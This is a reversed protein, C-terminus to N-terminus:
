YDAQWDVTIRKGPQVTRRLLAPQMMFEAFAADGTLLVVVLLGIIRAARPGGWATRRGANEGSNTIVTFHGSRVEVWPSPAAGVHASLLGVSLSLALIRM